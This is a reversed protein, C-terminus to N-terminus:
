PTGSLQIGWGSLDEGNVVATGFIRAGDCVKGSLVQAQGYVQARDCIEGGSVKVRGTIGPSGSITGGEIITEYNNAIDSMSGIRLQHGEYSEMKITGGTMRTKGQIHGGWSNGTGLVKATGSIHAEGKISGCNILANGFIEARGELWIKKGWSSVGCNYAHIKANGYIKVAGEVRVSDGYVKANGFVQSDGSVDAHGYVRGGSIVAHGYVQAEDEIRAAAGVKAHGCVVAGSDVFATASVTATNAVFGGGNPHDSGDKGSGCGRNVLNELKDHWGCVKIPRDTETNEYIDVTFYLPIKIPSIFYIMKENENAMGPKVFSIILDGSYQNKKNGTNKIEILEMSDVVVNHGISEGPKAMVYANSECSNKLNLISINKPNTTDVTYTEFQCSCFKKNKLVLLLQSKLDNVSLKQHIGKVEKGSFIIMQFLVAIVIMAIFSSVIISVFTMGKQNLQNM